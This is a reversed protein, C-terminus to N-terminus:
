VAMQTKGSNFDSRVACFRISAGEEAHGSRRWRKWQLDGDVRRAGGCWCDERGVRKTRDTKRTRVSADDTVRVLLYVRFYGSISQLGSLEM